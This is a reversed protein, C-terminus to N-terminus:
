QTFLTCSMTYSLIGHFSVCKLICHMSYEVFTEMVNGLGTYNVKVLAIDALRGVSPWSKHTHMSYGCDTAPLMILNSLYMLSQSREDDHTHEDHNHGSCLWM